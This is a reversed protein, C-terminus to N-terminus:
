AKNGEIAQAVMWDEVDFDDPFDFDTPEFTDHPRSRRHRPLRLRTRQRKSM